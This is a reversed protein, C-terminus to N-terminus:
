GEGGSTFEAFSQNQKRVMLKHTQEMLENSTDIRNKENQIAAQELGIRNLIDQKEQPTSADDALDQLNKINTLRKNAAAYTKQLTNLNTLDNDFVEQQIQNKSTMSYKNRMTKLTSKDMNKYITSWSDNNSDTPLYDYLEKANLLQGFRGNGTLLNKSEKFQDETQKFSREMDKLQQEWQAIEDVFNLSDQIIHAYDTVPVVAFTTTPILLSSIAFPVYFSKIFKNFSM